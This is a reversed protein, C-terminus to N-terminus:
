ASPRSVIVQRPSNASFPSGDFDGFKHEIVFGNYHLLADLKQPYYMRLDVPVDWTEGTGQLEYHWTSHKVQTAPNYIQSETVIVHGRGDPDDYEGVPFRQSPDRTLFKFAPTFVDLIFRGTTALHRRLCRLLSVLDDNALIHCLTNNAIFIVKFERDLTYDRADAHVFQIAVGAREAKTRAVSLMQESSDLGTIDAGGQRLPITLRGTGCALELVPGGYNEIHEQYFPLDDPGRFLADYHRANDYISSNSM